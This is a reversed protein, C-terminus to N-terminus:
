RRAFIRLLARRDAAPPEPPLAAVRHALDRGAPTLRAELRRAAAPGDLRELRVDRGRLTVLDWAALQELHPIAPDLATEGAHVTVTSSHLLRVLLARHEATLEAM